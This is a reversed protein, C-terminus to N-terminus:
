LWTPGVDDLWACLQAIADHRRRNAAEETDDITDWAFGVLFRPSTENVLRSAQPSIGPAAGGDGCLFGSLFRRWPDIQQPDENIGIKLPSLSQSGPHWHGECSYTSRLGLAGLRIIVPETLTDFSEPRAGLRRREADYHALDKYLQEQATAMRSQWVDFSIM